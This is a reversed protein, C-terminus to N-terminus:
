AVVQQSDSFGGQSAVVTGLQLSHWTGIMKPVEIARRKPYICLRNSNIRHFDNSLWFSLHVLIYCGVCLPVFGFLM